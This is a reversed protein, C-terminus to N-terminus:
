ELTKKNNHLFHNWFFFRGVTAHTVFGLRRGGYVYPLYRLHIFLSLPIYVGGGLM